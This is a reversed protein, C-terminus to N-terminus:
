HAGTMVKYPVAKIYQHLAEVRKSIRLAQLFEGVVPFSFMTNRPPERAGSM